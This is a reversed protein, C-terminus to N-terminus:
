VNSLRKHICSRLNKLAQLVAEPEEIGDTTCLEDYGDLLLVRVGSERFRRLIDRDSEKDGYLFRLVGITLHEDKRGGTPVDINRLRVTILQADGFIKAATEDRREYHWSLYATLSSKGCGADGEIFLFQAKEDRVFRALYADMSENTVRGGRFRHPVFLNRLCVEPNGKHLFLPEEFIEKYDQNSTNLDQKPRLLSLMEAQGRKLTEFDMRNLIEHRLLVRGEKSYNDRLVSELEQFWRRVGEEVDSKYPLAAPNRRLFAETFELRYAEPFIESDPKVAYACRTMERALREVIMADDITEEAKERGTVDVAELAAAKEADQYKDSVKEAVEMVLLIFQQLKEPVDALAMIGDLM